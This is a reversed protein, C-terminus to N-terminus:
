GCQFMIYYTDEDSILAIRAIMSYVDAQSRCFALGKANQYDNIIQILHTELNKNSLFMAQTNADETSQNMIIYASSNHQSPQNQGALKTFIVNRYGDFCVNSRPGIRNIFYNAYTESVEDYTQVQSSM